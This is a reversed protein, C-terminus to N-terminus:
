FDRFDVVTSCLCNMPLVLNRKLYIFITSLTLPGVHVIMWATVNAEDNRCRIGDVITFIFFVCIRPPSFSLSLFSKTPSPLTSPRAPPATPPPSPNLRRIVDTPRETPPSCLPVLPFDRWAGHYRDISRWWAEVEGDGIERTANRSLLVQSERRVDRALLHFRWAPSRRDGQVEPGLKLGKGEYSDDEEEEVLFLYAIM